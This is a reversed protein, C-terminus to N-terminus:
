VGVALKSFGLSKLPEPKLQIWQSFASYSVLGQILCSATLVVYFNISINVIITDNCYKKLTMLLCM